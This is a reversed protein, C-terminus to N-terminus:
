ASERTEMDIVAALLIAPKPSQGQLCLRSDTDWVGPFNFTEDDWAPLVAGAAVPGGKYTSPMDYWPGSLSSAYQIAGAGMNAAVLGLNAIKKKQNLATGLKAAYALKTSQFQWSYPLGACWNSVPKPLTVAGDAGVTFTGHDAGDAWVSVIEGVLHPLSISTSFPANTGFLHADLNKSIPQGICEDERAMRELRYSTAGNVVRKTAYYVLDEASTAGGQGPLVICDVYSSAGAASPAAEQKIWAHENEAADWVCIRATGDNLLGIIRTDPQRQVALWFFGPASLPAGNEMIAIDPVFNTLDTASYDMLFFSPTYSLLYIRRGSRQLFVGNFDIQIAPVAAGGQTCCDKADYTTPTLVGGLSSSRITIERAPTDILLDALALAWNVKDVPGYGIQQIIPGGDSVDTDDFGLYADSQSLANYGSGFWSLRGEYICVANPWGQVDSWLGEWWLTTAATSALGQLTGTNNPQILVDVTASTSNTVAVVRCVGTVSGAATNVTCVATGSTYTAGFGIRYFIVQNDWGDYVVGNVASTWASVNRVGSWIANTPIGTTGPAVTGVDEWAGIAGISQQLVVTGVFTGSVTIGFSRQSGVGTVEIAESWQNAGGANFTTSQGSPALRFLAGIHGSQFLSSSATLTVEGSLGSVALTTPTINETLFPGNFPLYEAISWSRPGSAGTTNSPGWRMIQYQQGGWAIYMIEASQTWRLNGLDSAGWPTPLAVDGAGEIAVSLLLAIIEDANSFQVYFTGTPTFAISHTGVGLALNFAYTSDGAATGVNLTVTGRQVVIRLAHEVNPSSTAVAQYEVAASAGNGFLYMCNGATWESTAGSQDANTWGDLNGNFTGNTVAAGVAVRSLPVSPTGDSGPLIPRISNPTAEILAVDMTSFVFPLYKAKQNNLTGLVDQTGPRFMASGLMRPMLNTQVSASLAM